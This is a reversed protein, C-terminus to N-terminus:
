HRWTCSVLASLLHWSLHHHQQLLMPWLSLCISRYATGVKNPTAAALIASKVASPSGGQGDGMYRCQM